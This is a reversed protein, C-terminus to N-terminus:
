LKIHKGDININKVKFDIGITPSHSINANEDEFKLLFSTKGVMSDGIMILSIKYDVPISPTKPKGSGFARIGGTSESNM